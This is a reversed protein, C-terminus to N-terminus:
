RCTPQCLRVLCAKSRKVIAAAPTEDFFAKYVSSVGVWAQQYDKRERPDFFTLIRQRLQDHYRETLADLVDIKSPFFHYMSTRTVGAREAIMTTTLEDLSVKLLLEEAAHLIDEVKSTSRKQSPEKRM